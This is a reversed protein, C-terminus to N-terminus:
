GRRCFLFDLSGLPSDLEIRALVGHPSGCSAPMRLAQTSGTWRHPLGELLWKRKLPSTHLAAGPKQIVILNPRSAREITSNSEEAIQELKVEKSDPFGSICSAQAAPAQVAPASVLSGGAPM